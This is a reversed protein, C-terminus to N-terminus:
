SEIGQFRFRSKSRFRNHCRSRGTKVREQSGHANDLRRCPAHKTSIRRTTSHHLALGKELPTRASPVRLRRCPNDGIIMCSRVAPVLGRLEIEASFARPPSIMRRRRESAAPVAAPGDAEVVDHIRQPNEVPLGSLRVPAIMKATNQMFTSHKSAIASAPVTTLRQM